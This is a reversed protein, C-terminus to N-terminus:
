ECGLEEFFPDILEKRAQAEKFAPNKYAEKNDEFLAVLERIRKPVQM